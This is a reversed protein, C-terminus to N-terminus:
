QALVKALAERQAERSTHGQPAYECDNQTGEGRVTQCPTDQEWPRHMICVVHEPHHSGFSLGALSMLPFFDNEKSAKFVTVDWGCQACPMKFFESPCQDKNEGM